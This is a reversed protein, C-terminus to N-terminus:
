IEASIFIDDIRILQLSHVQCKPQAIGYCVQNMFCMKMNQLKGMKCHALLVVSFDARSCSKMSYM